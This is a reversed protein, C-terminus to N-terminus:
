VVSKRDEMVIGSIYDITDETQCDVSRPQVVLRARESGYGAPLEVHINFYMNRGDDIAPAAKISITDRNTGLVDVNGITHAGQDMRVKFVHNYETQGERLVIVAFQADEITLEEDPLYSTVLVAMDPYAHVKFDGNGRSTRFRVKNAAVAKSWADMQVAGNDGRQRVVADELQAMVARAKQETKFLAYQVTRYEKEGATEFVVHTEADVAESQAYLAAIGGIYYHPLLMTMITIIITRTTM